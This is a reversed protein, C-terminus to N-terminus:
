HQTNSIPKRSITLPGHHMGTSTRDCQPAVPDLAYVNIETAFYIQGSGDVASGRVGGDIIVDVEHSDPHIRFVSNGTNGYVYGSHHYLSTTRGWNTSTALGTEIRVM